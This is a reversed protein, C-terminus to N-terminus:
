KRSLIESLDQQTILIKRPKNGDAPGVYGLEEMRDIIKAARGYGVELRRQLLSTSIKGSDVALQVADYLRPDENGANSPIGEDAAAERKKNGCKAAEEDISREFDSDYIVPENNNRIFEVVREVEADSVFSGQVRIPKSSGVPAFLMDGRGILKEAGVTDLITRSDTGSAVTFAIRSPVNNKILGTIVDVSPRQTGIILHIGAARAKQAIRCVATEVDDSASMMLDAFEDIIIVMRPMYPMDPDDKTIENYGTINRVGVQEILEFRKEMENVASNLAGAAKKPDTVIKCSLHPIDKYVNFEVKKPDILILKLESPKAKYLLSLIISNICVSKGMGTAGAVLLHPMKEIDFVVPKGSVDAGLCSAIKSKHNKFEPAELLSRLYVTAPKENPVEIGVAAKGPIPAEIRVGSKAMGLAIDDVLNAIARVRVGSEPKVEFRTITPGCSCTIDKVGIRFSALTERLRETNIDIEEKSAGYKTDGAVLLDIPPFKYEVVEEAEEENDDSDDSSDDNNLPVFGDGEDAIEEDSFIIEGTEKDVVANKNLLERGLEGTGAEDPIEIPTFGVADDDDEDDEEYSEQKSDEFDGQYEDEKASDKSEDAIAEAEAEAADEDSDDLAEMNVAEDDRDLSDDEVIAKKRKKDAKSKNKKKNDIETDESDLAVFGDDSDDEDDPVEEADDEDYSDEDEYEDIPSEDYDEYAVSAKVKVASSKVKTKKKKSKKKKKGDSVSAVVGDKVGNYLEMLRNGGVLIAILVLIIITSIIIGGVESLALVLLYGLYAGMVGGGTELLESYCEKLTPLEDPSDDICIFLLATMFIFILGLIISIKLLSRKEQMKKTMIGYFIMLLPITFAMFGFLSFLNECVWIGTPGFVCGSFYTAMAILLVIALTVLIVGALVYAGENSQKAKEANGTNAKKNSKPSVKSTKVVKNPVLSNGSNSKAQSKSTGKKQTTGKKSTTQNKKSNEAM